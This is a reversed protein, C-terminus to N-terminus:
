LTEKTKTRTRLEVDLKIASLVDDCHLIFLAFRNRHGEKGSVVGNGTSDGDGKRTILLKLMQADLNLKNTLNTRETARSPVSEVDSM